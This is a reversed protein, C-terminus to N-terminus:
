RGSWILIFHDANGIMGWDDKTPVKELEKGKLKSAIGGKIINTDKLAELKKAPTGGKEKVTSVAERTAQTISKSIQKPKSLFTIAKHLLEQVVEVVHTLKQLINHVLGVEEKKGVLPAFKQIVCVGKTAKALTGQLEDIKDTAKNLLALATGVGGEKNVLPEVKSLIMQGTHARKDVTDLIDQLPKLAEKNDLIPELKNLTERAITVSLTIKALVEQAKNVNEAVRSLLDQSPGEGEEPQEPAGEEPQEPAGQEKAPQAPQKTTDQEKDTPQEAQKSTDREKDTSQEGQETNTQTAERASANEANEKVGKNAM